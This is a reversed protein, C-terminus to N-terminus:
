VTPPIPLGWSGTDWGAVYDGAADFGFIPDGDVSTVVTSSGVGEPKIPVQGTGLLYLFVAPPRVGSVGITMTMNQNDIVSILTGTDAFLIDLIAAIGPVTSDWQNAAIVARLLLRYNDDDLRVLGTDPDGPGQWTGEEWGLGSTDWAFYVGELPEPLYRTRNVRVGVADLQVGVASDLDFAATLTYLFVQLESLPETLTQVTDRLRQKTSLWSGLLDLYETTARM